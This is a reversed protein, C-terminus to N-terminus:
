PFTREKTILIKWPAVEQDFGKYDIQQHEQDKVNWPGLKNSYGAEVSIKGSNHLECNTVECSSFVQRTYAYRFSDTPNIYEDELTRQPIVPKM